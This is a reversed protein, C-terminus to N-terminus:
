APVESSKKKAIKSRAVAATVEQGTQTVGEAVVGNDACFAAVTKDSLEVAESGQAGAIRVVMDELVGLGDLPKAISDWRQRARDMAERDAPGIRDLLQSLKQESM